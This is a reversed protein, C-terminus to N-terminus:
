RPKPIKKLLLNPGDKYDSLGSLNLKKRGLWAWILNEKQGKSVM